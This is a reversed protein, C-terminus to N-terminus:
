NESHVFSPLSLKANGGLASVLIGVFICFVASAAYAVNIRYRKAERDIERMMSVVQLSQDILKKRQEPSFDDRSLEGRISENIARCEELCVRTDGDSGALCESIISKYHDTIGALASALEPFQELAKKAVEPDINPLASVFSVLKDKTMHRFSPIDLMKLLDAERIQRRIAM